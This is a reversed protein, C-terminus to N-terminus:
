TEKKGEQGQPEGYRVEGGVNEELQRWDGKALGEDEKQGFGPGRIEDGTPIAKAPNATPLSQDASRDDALQRRAASTSFSRRSPPQKADQAGRPEGHRVEGGVNEELQRWEGTAVGEPSASASKDEGGFGPGRIDDTGSRPVAEAPDATPVDATCRASTAFGRARRDARGRSIQEMIKSIENNLLQQNKGARSSGVPRRLLAATDPRGGALLDGASRNTAPSMGVWGPEGPVISGKNVEKRRKDAQRSAYVEMDYKFSDLPSFQKTGATFGNQNVSLPTPDRKGTASSLMVRPPALLAASKVRFTSVGRTKDTRTHDFSPDLGENSYGNNTGRSMGATLGGIGIVYDNRVNRGRAASLDKNRHYSDRGVDAPLARGPYATLPSTERQIVTPDTYSSTGSVPKSYALGYLEHPSPVLEDSARDDRLSRMKADAIYRSHHKDMRRPSVAARLLNGGAAPDLHQAYDTRRARLEDLYAAFRKEGMAQIDPMFPAAKDLVDQRAARAQPEEEDAKLEKLSTAKKTRVGGSAHRRQARLHGRAAEDTVQFEHEERTFWGHRGDAWREMFRAEKEGSRYDCDLGEGAAADLSLIRLYKPRPHAATSSPLTYKLGWDGRSASPSTYVRAILPDFTAFKTRALLSPLSAM